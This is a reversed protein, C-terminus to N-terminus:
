KTSPQQNEKKFWNKKEELTQCKASHPQWFTKSRDNAYDTKTWYQTHKHHNKQKIKQACILLWFGEEEGWVDGM